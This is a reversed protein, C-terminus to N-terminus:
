HQTLTETLTRVAEYCRAKVLHAPIGLIEATAAVSTRHYFTEVIVARCEPSLTGLPKGCGLASRMLCLLLPFSFAQLHLDASSEPERRLEDPLKAAQQRGVLCMHRFAPIRVPWRRQWTM